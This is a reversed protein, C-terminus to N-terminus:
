AALAVPAPQARQDLLTMDLYRRDNWISTSQQAVATVLRLASARDPFAGIARTRRKTEGHLRELGNTSRIRMWHAPPAAYYLTGAAFGHELCAVAEAFQAVFRDRFSRLAKKAEVLSAAHLVRVVEAGIRGQHKAPVKTLVNRTLHVTCRQQPVEPLVKRAAARIGAHDDAILLRVGHLGRDVLERLLGAWSAESEQTGIHVALLRRFGDPGIGYAVLAAVNEVSRAWRVDLFTADLYLYAIPQDIRERRLAEVTDDLRRTVRSVTSRGVSKGLLAETVGTMDRTSLGRVYGETVAADIEPRRRKYRGLPATASGGGRTRGVRVAVEGVGTVVRRPYDGNRVDVRQDSRQYTGAGVLRSLEEDLIVQIVDKVARRCQAALDLKFDEQAPIM